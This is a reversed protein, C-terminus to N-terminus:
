YCALIATVGNFPEETEIAEEFWGRATDFEGRRQFIRGLALISPVDNDNIDKLIRTYVAISFKEINDKAKEDEGRRISQSLNSLQSTLSKYNGGNVYNILEDIPENVFHVATRVYRPWTFLMDLQEGSFRGKVAKFSDEIKERLEDEVHIVDAKEAKMKWLGDLENKIKEAPDNQSVAEVEKNLVSLVRKFLRGGINKNTIYKM